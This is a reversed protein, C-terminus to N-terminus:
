NRVNEISYTIHQQHLVGHIVATLIKSLVFLMLTDQPIRSVYQINDFFAWFKPLSM